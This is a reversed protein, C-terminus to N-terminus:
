TMLEMVSVKYKDWCLKYGPAADWRITMSTSSRKVLKVIVVTSNDIKKPQIKSKPTPIQPTTLKLTPTQPTPTQPLTWTYATAMGPISNVWKDEMNYGLMIRARCCVICLPLGASDNQTLYHRTSSSVIDFLAM